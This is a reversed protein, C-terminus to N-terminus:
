RPSGFRCPSQKLVKNYTAGINHRLNKIFRGLTHLLNLILACKILATCYRGIKLQSIKDPDVGIGDATVIHGLFTFGELGFKCKSQKIKLNTKYDHLFM